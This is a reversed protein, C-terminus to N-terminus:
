SDAYAGFFKRISAGIRGQKVAGEWFGLVVNHAGVTGFVYIQDIEQCLYCYEATENDEANAHPEDPPLSVSAM